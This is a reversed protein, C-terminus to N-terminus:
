LKFIIPVSVTGDIPTKGRKAPDFTWSLVAKVAAEDLIQQGSSKSIKVDDPLGSALVHVRLLVTGEIGRRQAVAPYAPVPNNKYGAFGRPETVPEPVVVPAPAPPAAVAVAV